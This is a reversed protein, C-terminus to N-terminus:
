QTRRGHGAVLVLNEILELHVLPGKFTNLQGDFLQLFQKLLEHLQVCQMPTLYFCKNVIDQLNAPEYLSTRITTTKYGAPDVEKEQYQMDSPKDLMTISGNTEHNHDIDNLLLNTAFMMPQYDNPYEHMTVTSGDWEMMKRKFDLVIGLETMFDRGLIMNYCCGKPFIKAPLIEIHRMRHFEPLLLNHIDVSENSTFSSALTQNTVTPVQNTQIDLPLATRSIWCGTAGSDLLCLM